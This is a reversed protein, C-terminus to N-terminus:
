LEWNADREEDEIRTAEIAHRFANRMQKAWRRVAGIPHHDLELLPQEYLAYYTTRSGTWGFTNMNAVLARLVDQRDGFEDLLRKMLPHFQRNPADPNRTTLVPILRAVFAPGVKPHAHCWAFLTEEPLHLIAPQKIDSFSYSDGLAHEFGWAKTRDSVVAQGLQPWVVESFDRLLEPLLPKILDRGDGDPDAALQKALKLAIARADADKPGKALMWKMMEGFHHEDMHSGRKRLRLMPYDAAQRLQPRLQELRKRDGHVYMGMLEIAVSYGEAEMGFLQDFLPTVATAPLKALAGGFVWQMVMQPPLTGVNLAKCVLDIDSAAIGISICVLPLTQAFTHSDVAARKFEEAAEENREFLGAFYGALLSLNRDDPSTAEYATTIHDRWILPDFALKAIARGFELAMRQNGRSLQPLLQIIQDTEGNLLESALEEVAQVQRRNRVDFDLKEDEPYDWPMETVLLRVRDAIQTPKLADLLAHVRDAIGPELGECDYQLVDGLSGSAEPWYPHVSIVEFIQEEVFDILGRTVLMRFQHGLGARARAGIYDSRLALKALRQVCDRIYDWADKWIKPHWPELAPRSGHYEPGVSRSFFDTKAGELLADVVISLQRENDSCLAEDIVQLWLKPGAATDALFVPFLNKFQGTSNNGWSENEAVALKLLLVAGREFTSEVFSIRELAHVLQRRVAGEIAMLEADSLPSLLHELLAVVVETDIEALSCLIEANGDESLAQFSAFPGDLRCTHRAVDMAITRTNLMSLQRAARVRLHQAMDGALVNDWKGQGWRRWQQEALALAVPRPQLNILRGRRQAVGRAELEDFAARLADATRGLSLQAADTLDLDLPPTTGLLGFTGLLMGADQLLAPDRSKRGILIRYILEDDTASAIPVDSLWANGILRALQPFGAAFRYLRRQDEAPLNPAIHKLIGEIVSKDAAEVLLTNNPLNRDPPIEHDITILSLRSSSRKVMAAIDQHTESVCRDVVVIARISADVLNQVINKVATAGAESEVAYLVLDCLRPRNTEEDETPGLAELVLRSKGVGSLGLVRAVGRPAAILTRLQQAFKALRTDPIFPSSDHEHRGAWHSWDRFPGVLGPQTQELIWASVSPHANAWQAIQDADRFQVQAPKIVLGGAILADRIRNERNAIEKRTYSRACLMVYTGRAELADRIMPKVTKDSTLVDSAAEAPSISTAKLQFQCLRNPLYPTREAAGAWEIRADEGADSATIIAAVHIGDMPLNGTQAEASLLHRTLAALKRDTLAAIHQGSVDLPRSGENNIPVKTGTLTALVGPNADLLRMLNAVSAAPKITGAEYKTFARPGGGLLEGAEVQSLGLQERIRRIEEPGLDGSASARTGAVTVVKTQRKRRQVM